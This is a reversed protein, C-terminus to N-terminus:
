PAAGLLWLEGLDISGDGGAAFGQLTPGLSARLGSVVLPVLDLERALRHANGLATLRHVVGGLAEYARRAAAPGRVLWAIQAAALAPEPAAVPVSVLAVDYDGAALRSRFRAPDVLEVSARVGADFLKVQIREALARQDPASSDALLAVRPPPAASAEGQPPPNTVAPAGVVAAPPILTELPAAPGRVFRRALEARDIAELARRLPEAGAGLRTRSVAAVTVTLAPLAPGPRGGAAEPRLVLDLAGRELLRAATRADVPHIEVRSAYPRGRHHRENAALVLPDGPAKRPQAVFPGADPLAAPPAALLSSFEPLPLALTVLLEDPSVVQVGSLATARGELVADAGAIPLAIWGDPSGRELLAALRAAVNAAGLPRGRADTLGPRVRLRFVRGGAEPAPVEALAGPVLRGSGGAVDLLPASTARRVLLDASRDPDGPRQPAPVGIRATGGYAPRVDAAAVAPVLSLLVALSRRM